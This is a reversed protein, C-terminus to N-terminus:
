TDSIYIQQLSNHVPQDANPYAQYTANTHSANHKDKPKDRNWSNKRKADKKESRM